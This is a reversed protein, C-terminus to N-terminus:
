DQSADVRADAAGAKASEALFKAFAKDEAMFGKLMEEALLAFSIEDGTKRHYFSQYAKLNNLVSAHLGMTIRSVPDNSTVKKLKMFVGYYNLLILTAGTYNLTLLLFTRSNFQASKTQCAARQYGPRILGAKQWEPPM